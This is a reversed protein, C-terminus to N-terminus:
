IDKRNLSNKQKHFFTIRKIEILTFSPKPVVTRLEKIPFKHKNKYEKKDIEDNLMKLISLILNSMGYSDLLHRM